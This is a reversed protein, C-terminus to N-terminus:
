LHPTRCRPVTSQSFQDITYAPAAEGDNAITPYGLYFYRFDFGGCCFQGVNVDYARRGIRASMADVRFLTGVRPPLEPHLGQCGADSLADKIMLMAIVSIREMRPGDFIRWRLPPAQHANRMVLKANNLRQLGGRLYICGFRQDSGGPGGPPKKKAGITRGRDM